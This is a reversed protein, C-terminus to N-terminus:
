NHNVGTKKMAKRIETDFMSRVMGPILRYSVDAFKAGASPVIHFKGAAMARLLESAVAEATLPKVNGAIARTEAPKHQNEFALQPTDTDPPYCVSVLVGHPHMECRLAEAFGRVAFKSASYATYGFIGILGALSSVFAVHGKKREVMGQLVHRTLYVAGMYNTSMLQGFSEQPLDLFHGALAEGANNILVDVTQKALLVKMAAAVAEPDSISLSLTQVEHGGPIMDLEIKAQSLRAENRAVLILRAGHSQLIRAIALGIGSSGGTILITKKQFYEM